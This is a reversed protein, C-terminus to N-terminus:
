IGTSGFGGLNRETVDQSEYEEKTIEKAQHNGIKILVLQAIKMNPEIHVAYEGDNFLNVMVENQFGEDIVHAGFRLKKKTAIGSKNCVFLAYGHPVNVKIGIPILVDKGPEVICDFDEPVFVDFGADNDHAKEIPKVNRIRCFELEEM